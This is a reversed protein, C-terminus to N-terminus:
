NQPIDTSLIAKLKPLLLLVVGKPPNPALLLLLLAVVDVGPSYLREMKNRPLLPKVSMTLM